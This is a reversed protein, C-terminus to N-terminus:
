AAADAPVAAGMPAGGGGKGPACGKTVGPATGGPEPLRFGRSGTNGRDPRIGPQGAGTGTFGARVVCGVAGECGGAM